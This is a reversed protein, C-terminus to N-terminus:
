EFITQKKIGQQFPYGHNSPYQAVLKGIGSAFDCVFHLLGTACRTTM